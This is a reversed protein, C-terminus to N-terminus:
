LIRWRPLGKYPIDWMDCLTHDCIKLGKEELLAEWYTQRGIYSRHEKSLLGAREEMRTLESWLEFEQRTNDVMLEKRHIISGGLRSTSVVEEGSVTTYQVLRPHAVHYFDPYWLFSVFPTGLSNIFFKVINWPSSNKQTKINLAEKILIREKEELLHRYNDHIYIYGGVRKGPKKKKDMFRPM